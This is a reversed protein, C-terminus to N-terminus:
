YEGGADDAFADFEDGGVTGEIEEEEDDDEPRPGNKILSKAQGTELLVALQDTFQCSSLEAFSSPFPPPPQLLAHTLKNRARLIPALESVM